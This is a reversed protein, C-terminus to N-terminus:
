LVSRPSVVFCREVTTKTCSLRYPLLLDLRKSCVFTNKKKAKTPIKKNSRKERNYDKIYISKKDTELSLVWVLSSLSASLLSVLVSRKERILRGVVNKQQQQQEQCEFLVM